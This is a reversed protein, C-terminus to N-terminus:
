KAIGAIEDCWNVLQWKLEYGTPPKSSRVLGDKRLRDLWHRVLRIGQEVCEATPEEGNLILIRRTIETSGLTKAEALINVIKKREQEGLVNEPRGKTKALTAKLPINDAMATLRWCIGHRGPVKVQEVAGRMKLHDLSNQVRARTRWREHKMPVHGLFREVFDRINLPKGGAARLAGVIFPTDMFRQFATPNPRHAEELAASIQWTSNPHSQGVCESTYTQIVPVPNTGTLGLLQSISGEIQVSVAGGGRRDTPEGFPSITVRDILARIADRAQAADASKEPLHARIASFKTRLREVVKRHDLNPITVSALNLDRQIDELENLLRDMEAAIRPRAPGDATTSKLANMLREVERERQMERKRLIGNNGQAAAVRRNYEACYEKTAERLVQPELLKTQVTDLVLNEVRIRSVRRRNDCIRSLSHGACRLILGDKDSCVYGRGCIGCFLKRSLLHRPGGRKHLPGSASKAVRAQVASWLEDSVIRLEPNDKTEINDEPGRRAVYKGTRPNRAGVRIGWRWKGIYMPNRLIGNELGKTAYLASETWVAGDRTKTGKANLAQVIEITRVGAAYQEHTWRVVAAQEENIVRKGDIHDYGYPPRGLLVGRRFAGAQGRRVKQGLDKSYESNQFGRMALHIPTVYGDSLTFMKVGDHELCKYIYPLDSMDRSLRDTHEALVLDFKHRETDDLMRMLDNRKHMTTGTLGRDIYEGVKAWGM